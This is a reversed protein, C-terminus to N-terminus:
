LLRAKKKKVNSSKLGWLAQACAEIPTSDQGGFGWLGQKGINRRVAGLLSDDLLPSEIHTLERNKFAECFMNAASAADVPKAKKVFGKRIGKYGELKDMLAQASAQGDVCFKSSINQVKLIIDIIWQNGNSMTRHEFVEIHIKEGVQAAVAVCVTSEDVSFKVGFARKEPEGPEDVLMERWAEGSFLKTGMPERWYGLRERAFGLDSLQARENAVVKENVRYGFAPNTMKVIEIDDLKKEDFELIGWEFYSVDNAGEQANKRVRAFVEGESDKEPPTGTYIVQFDQSTTMTPLIAAIQEDTLFQAEDFIVVDVSFGRGSASGRAVFEISGGNKLEIAEQGNTKRIRYVLKNLDDNLEFFKCLRDFAKRATKLQQATHVIRKGLVCLLFLCYSEIIANKGNQRAVALLCRQHAFKGDGGRALWSTLVDEQWPDLTLAYASSLQIAEIADDFCVANTSTRKQTPERSGFDSLKVTSVAAPSQQNM